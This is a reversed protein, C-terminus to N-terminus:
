ARGEERPATRGPGAASQEQTVPGQGGRRGGGRGSCTGAGRARAARACPRGDPRWRTRTARPRTGAGARGGSCPRWSPGCGARPATAWLARRPSGDGLHGPGRGHAPLERCPAPRASGRSACTGCPAPSRPCARGQLGAPPRPADEPASSPSRTARRGAAGRPPAPHGPRPPPRARGRLGRSAAPSHGVCSAPRSAGWRAAQRCRGRRARPAPASPPRPLRHLASEPAYRARARGGAPPAECPRPCPPRWATRTLLRGLVFPVFLGRARRSARGARRRSDRSLPPRPAQAAGREAPRPGPRAGRSAAAALGPHARGAEGGAAEGHAAGRVCM